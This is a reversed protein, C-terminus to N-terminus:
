WIPILLNKNVLGNITSCNLGDFKGVQLIISFFFLLFNTKINQIEFYQLWVLPIYFVNVCFSLIGDIPSRVRAFQRRMLDNVM